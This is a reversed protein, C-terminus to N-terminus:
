HTQANNLESLLMSCRSHALVPQLLSSLFHMIDLTDAILSLSPHTTFSLVCARNLAFFLAKAANHRYKLVLGFFVKNKDEASHEQTNNSVCYAAAAQSCFQWLPSIIGSSPSDTLLQNLSCSNPRNVAKRVMM